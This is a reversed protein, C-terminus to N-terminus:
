HPGRNDQANESEERLFASRVKNMVIVGAMLLLVWVGVFGIMIVTLGALTDSHLDAMATLVMAGVWAGLSLVGELIDFRDERARRKRDQERVRLVEAYLPSVEFPVKRPYWEPALHLGFGGFFVALVVRDVLRGGLLVGAAVGMVCAIVRYRHYGYIAHLAKVMM